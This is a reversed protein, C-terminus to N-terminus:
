ERNEDLVLEVNTFHIQTAADAASVTNGTIVHPPEFVIAIRYAAGPETRALYRLAHIVNIDITGTPVGGGHEAHADDPESLRAWIGIEGIKYRRAFAADAVNFATAAPYLYVTGRYNFTTPVTLGRVVVDATTFDENPITVAFVHPGLTSPMAAAAAKKKGTPAPVSLTIRREKPATGHSAHLTSMSRKATGVDMAAVAFAPEVTCSPVNDYLYGLQQEIDIVDKVKRDTMGRFNCEMCIPLKQHACQWRQYIQDIFAHFSWFVPDEVATEPNEMTPGMGDHMNNHYPSELAGYVRPSACNTCNAGASCNPKLVCPKGAFEVWDSTDVILSDITNADVTYTPPMNRIARYLVSTPDEYAKPYGKSGSPKQTWDWYPITLNDTRGPRAARIALEYRYLLERHWPLFVEFGHICGSKDGIFLDHLNAFYTYGNNIWNVPDDHHNPDKDRDMLIQVAIKYGELDFRPDDINMRVRPQAFASGMSLVVFLVLLPRVVIKM